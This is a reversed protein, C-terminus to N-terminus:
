AQSVRTLYPLSCPSIPAAPLQIQPEPIAEARTGAKPPGALGLSTHVAM